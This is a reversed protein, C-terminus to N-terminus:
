KRSYVYNDDLLIQTNFFVSHLSIALDLFMWHLTLGRVASGAEGPATAEAFPDDLTIDEAVAEFAQWTTEVFLACWAYRGQCKCVM